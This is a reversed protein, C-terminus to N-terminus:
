DRLQRSFMCRLAFAMLAIALCIVVGLGAIEGPTMADPSTLKAQRSTSQRICPLLSVQCLCIRVRPQRYQKDLRSMSTLCKLASLADIHPRIVLRSANKDSAFRRGDDM